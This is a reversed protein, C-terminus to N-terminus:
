KPDDTLPSRRCERNLWEMVDDFNFRTSRGVKLHPIQGRYCMEMITRPKKQLLEGVEKTTMLQHVTITNGNM